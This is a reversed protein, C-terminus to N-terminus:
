LGGASSVSGCAVRHGAGTGGGGRENTTQRRRPRHTHAMETPVYRTM